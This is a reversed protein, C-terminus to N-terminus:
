FREAIFPSKLAKWEKFNDIHMFKFLSVGEHSYNMEIKLFAEFPSLFVVCQSLLYIAFSYRHLQKDSEVSGDGNWQM